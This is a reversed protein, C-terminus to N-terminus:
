HNQRFDKQSLADTVSSIQRLCQKIDDTLLFLTITFYGLCYIFIPTLRGYLVTSGASLNAPNLTIYIFFLSGILAFILTLVNRQVINLTMEKKTFPIASLRPEFTRVQLIYFLLGLDLISGILMAFIAFNPSRGQYSSLTLGSFKLFFIIILGQILMVLIPFAINLVALLKLRENTKKMSEPTGTYSKVCRYETIAMGIGVLLTLISGFNVIPNSFIKGMEQATFLGSMLGVPTMMILSSAYILFIFLYGYWPVRIGNSPKKSNM